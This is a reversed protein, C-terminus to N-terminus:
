GRLMMGLTSLLVLVMTLLMLIGWIKFYRGLSQLGGTITAPRNGTVGKKVKSSFRALFYFSALSLALTIFAALYIIGKVMQRIEAESVGAEKNEPIPIQQVPLNFLGTIATLSSLLTVWAAIHATKAAAFVSRSLPTATESATYDQEM